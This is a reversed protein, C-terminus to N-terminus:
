QRLLGARALHLGSCASGATRGQVLKAPTPALPLSSLLTRFFHTAESGPTMVWRLSSHGPARHHPCHTLSCPANGSSSCRHLLGHSLVLVGAASQWQDKATDQFKRYAPAPGVPCGPLCAHALALSVAAPTCAQGQGPFPLEQWSEDGVGEYVGLANPASCGSFISSCWSRAVGPNKGM